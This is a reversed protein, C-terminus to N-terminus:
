GSPCLFATSLLNLFAHVAFEYFSSCVHILALRVCRNTAPNFMTPQTDEIAAFFDVLEDPAAKGNVKVSTSASASGSGTANASGNTPKAASSPLAPVPPTATKATFHHCILANIPFLSISLRVLEVV